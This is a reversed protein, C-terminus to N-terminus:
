DKMIPKSYDSTVISKLQNISQGCRDAGMSMNKKNAFLVKERKRATFCFLSDLIAPFFSSFLTSFFKVFFVDLSSSNNNLFYIYSNISKQVPRIFIGVRLLFVCFFLQFSHSLWFHIFIILYDCLFRFIKSCLLPRLIECATFSISTLPTLVM